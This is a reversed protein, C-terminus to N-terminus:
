AGNETHTVEAWRTRADALYSALDADPVHPDVAEHTVPSGDPGPLTSRMVVRHTVAPM